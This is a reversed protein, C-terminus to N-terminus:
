DLLKVSTPNLRHLNESLWKSYVEDFKLPLTKLLTDLEKQVTKKIEVKFDDLVRV